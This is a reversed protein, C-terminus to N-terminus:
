LQETTVTGGAGAGQECVAVTMVHINQGGYISHEYQGHGCRCLNRFGAGLVLLLLLLWCILWM